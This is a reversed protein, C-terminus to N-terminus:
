LWYLCARDVDVDGVLEGELLVVVLLLLLPRLEKEAEEVIEMAVEQRWTGEEM